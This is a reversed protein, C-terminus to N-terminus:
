AGKGHSSIDDVLVQLVTRQHPPLVVLMQSLVNLAKEMVLESVPQEKDEKFSLIYDEDDAFPDRRSSSLAWQRNEFSLVHQDFELMARKVGEGERWIVINTANPGHYWHSFDEHKNYFEKAVLYTNHGVMKDKLFNELVLRKEGPVNRLQVAVLDAGLRVVEAFYETTPYGALKIDLELFQGKEFTGGPRLFSVSDYSIDFVDQSAKEGDIATIKAENVSTRNGSLRGLVIRPFRRKDKM